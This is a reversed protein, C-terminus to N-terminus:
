LDRRILISASEIHDTRPFMDVPVVEELRYQSGLRAIDRAWTEPNCSVYIVRNAKLQLLAQIVLPDLGARPPDVIVADPALQKRSVWSDIISEVRGVEMTINTLHNLSFNIQADSVADPNIEVARVRSARRAALSALTGVGSYLDWVEVCPDPLFELAADYLVASQEPNVQFFSTFSLRFIANLVTETIYASGALLTTKPGLVRNGSQNNVNLGVGSIQPIASLLTDALMRFRPDDRYAVILVLTREEYRSSRILLHRLLGTKQLEDYVPLGMANAIRAAQEL